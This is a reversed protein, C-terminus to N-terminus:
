VDAMLYVIMVNPLAGGGKEMVFDLVQHVYFLRFSNLGIRENVVKESM